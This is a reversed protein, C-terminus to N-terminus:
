FRNCRRANVTARAHFLFRYCYLCFYRIFYNRKVETYIYYTALFIVYEDTYLKANTRKEKKIMMWKKM